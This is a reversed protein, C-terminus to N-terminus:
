FCGLSEDKPYFSMGKLPNLSDRLELDGYYASWKYVEGEIVLEERFDELIIPYAECLLKLHGPSTAWRMALEVALSSGPDDIGGYCLLFVGERHLLFRLTMYSADLNANVARLDLMSVPVLQAPMCGNDDRSVVKAGMAVLAKVFPYDSNAAAQFLHKTLTEEENDEVGYKDLMELAARPDAPEHFDSVEEETLIRLSPDVALLSGSGLFVGAVIMHKISFGM